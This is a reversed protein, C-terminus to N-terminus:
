NVLINPQSAGLAKIQALTLIEAFTINAANSAGTQIAITKFGGAIDLCAEPLIEFVVIKNKLGADTTYNAAASRQTLLSTLSVDLNSWIPVNASLAKSGTGSVDQAQLPTLAVTAANGQTIHVVLYAKISNKLSVYASTRGAADAAPNLLQFPPIEAVLSFQRGSM